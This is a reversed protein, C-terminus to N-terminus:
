QKPQRNQKSITDKVEDATMQIEVRDGKREFVNAPIVVPTSGLGMFEGIEARVAPQGRSIGVEIIEGLKQGDSSYVPLGVLTVEPQAVPPQKEQAVVSTAAGAIVITAAVLLAKLM